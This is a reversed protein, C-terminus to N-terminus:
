EEWEIIVKVGIKTNGVIKYDEITEDFVAGWGNASFAEEKTQYLYGPEDKNDNKNINTYRVISKKQTVM